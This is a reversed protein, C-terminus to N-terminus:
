GDAHFPAFLCSLGPMLSRVVQAADLAADEDSFTILLSAGVDRSGTSVKGNASLAQFVSSPDAGGDPLSGKHIMISRSAQGSPVWTRDVDVAVEWRKDTEGHAEGSGEDNREDEDAAPEAGSAKSTTTAAALIETADKGLSTEAALRLTKVVSSVKDRLDKIESSLAKARELLARKAEASQTAKLKLLVDKQKAMAEDLALELAHQKEHLKKLRELKPNRMARAEAAAAAQQMRDSTTLQKRGRRGTSGVVGAAETTTGVSAAAAASAAAEALDDEDAWGSATSIAQIANNSRMHAPVSRPNSSGLDIVLTDSGPGLVTPALRSEDRPAPHPRSPQPPSIKTGRGGQEGERDDEALMDDLLSDESKSAERATLEQVRALLKDVDSPRLHKKLEVALGAVGTRAFSRMADKKVSEDNGGSCRCRPDHGLLM